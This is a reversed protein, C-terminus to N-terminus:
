EKLVATRFWSKKITCKNLEEPLYNYSNIAPQTDVRPNYYKEQCYFHGLKFSPIDGDVIYYTQNMSNCYSIASQNFCEVDFENAMTINFLYIAGFFLLFGGAVMSGYYLIGKIIKNM